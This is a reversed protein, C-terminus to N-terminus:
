KEQEWEEEKIPEGSSYYCEWDTVDEDAWWANGFKNHHDPLKHVKDAEFMLIVTRHKDLAWAMAAMGSDFGRVPPIIRGSERYKKAKRPTTAHFLIM